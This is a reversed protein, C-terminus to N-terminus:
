GWTWTDGLAGHFGSGDFLVVTGTAADYAMVAFARDPPHFPRAQKTWTQVSASSAQVAAPAMGLVGCAARGAAGATVIMRVEM